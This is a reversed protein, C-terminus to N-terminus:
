ILAVIYMVVIVVVFVVYSIIWAIHHQTKIFSGALIMVLIYAIATGINNFIKSLDDNGKFIVTLILAIAICACSVYACFNLIKQFNWNHQM